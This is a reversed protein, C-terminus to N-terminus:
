SLYQFIGGDIDTGKAVKTHLHRTTRRLQDERKKKHLAANLIRELLEDTENLKRKYVESKMWGWMYFDSPSLDPSEFMEM